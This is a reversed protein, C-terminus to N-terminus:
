NEGRTADRLSRLISPSPARPDGGTLQAIAQEFVAEYLDSVSGGRYAAVLRDADEASGLNGLLRAAEVVVGPDPHDLLARLAPRTAEGLGRAAQVAASRPVERYHSARLLPALDDPLLPPLPGGGLSSLLARARLRHGVEAAELWARLAGALPRLAAEQGAELGRQAAALTADIVWPDRSGELPQALRAWAAALDRDELRTLGLEAAEPRQRIAEVIVDPAAWFGRRARLGAPADAALDGRRGWRTSRVRGQRDSYLEGEGSPPGGPRALVGRRAMDAVLAASNEPGLRISTGKRTNFRRLAVEVEKARRLDRWAKALQLFEAATTVQHEAALEGPAHEVLAAKCSGRRDLTYGQWWHRVAAEHEGQRWYAEGLMRRAAGHTPQLSLARRLPGEARGPQDAELLAKGLAVWAQPDRPQTRLAQELPEIRAVLHRRRLAEAEPTPAEGWRPAPVEPPVDGALLQLVEGLQSTAEPRGIPQLGVLRVRVRRLGEPVAARRVRLLYGSVQGPPAGPGAELESPLSVVVPLTQQAGVLDLVLHRTADFAGLWFALVLDGPHPKPTLELHRAAADFRAQHDATYIGDSVFGPVSRAPDVHFTGGLSQAVLRPNPGRGPGEALTFSELSRLTEWRRGGATLARSYRDRHEARSEGARGHMDPLWAQHIAHRLIREFGPRHAEDVLPPPQRHNSRSLLREVLLLRSADALVETPQLAQSLSWALVRADAERLHRSFAARGAQWLATPRSVEVSGTVDLAAQVEPDEESVRRLAALRARARALRVESASPAAAAPAHTAPPAPPPEAGPGGCGSALLALAGTWALAGRLARAELLVAM